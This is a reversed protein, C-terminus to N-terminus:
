NLMPLDSYIQRKVVEFPLIMGEWVEMRQEVIMEAVVEVVHDIIGETDEIYIGLM